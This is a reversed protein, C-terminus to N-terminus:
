INEKIWFFAKKLWNGNNEDGMNMVGNKQLKAAKLRIMGVSASHRYPNDSEDLGALHEPKALRVQKHFIDSVLGRAGQLCAGGGTIVMRRALLHDMGTADYQKKIQQLIEEIRPSIVQALQNSTISLGAAYGSDPEFDDIRITDNRSLSGVVANGYLIKLKEATDINVSFVKAIDSTVHFSGFPVSSTYIIKGDFFIAFSTTHSGFDILIVGLKKEEETLCALGSAYVSLIVDTVEIQCKALCNTLNILMLSDAAIIHLQCKLERGYMGIPNDVMNSQDLTFEIPVYHIVERDKVKFEALAKQVLRNVDQKTIAGTGLKITHHIYYSKVGSGSLSIAVEKISKDCEQELLYVAGIISNEASQLNTISSSKVGESYHLLQAAVSIDGQKTINAAIASIKSSGIDLAVFNSSKGKM